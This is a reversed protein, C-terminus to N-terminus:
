DGLIINGEMSARPIGLPVYGLVLYSGSCESLPPWSVQWCLSIQVVLKVSFGKLYFLIKCFFPHCCDVQGVGLEAWTGWAM